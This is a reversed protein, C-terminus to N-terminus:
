SDNVVRRISSFAELLTDDEIDCYKDTQTSDEAHALMLGTLRKSYGQKTFHMGVFRRLYKAGYGELGAKKFRRCLYTSTAKNNIDPFVRDNPNLQRPITNLIEELETCIPIRIKRQTKRRVADLWLQNGKGVRKLNGWKLHVVDMIDVATYVMFWYVPIYKKDLLFNAVHDIKDLNLPPLREFIIKEYAPTKVKYLEGMVTRLLAQLAQLHKTITDEKAQLKGEANRGFLDEVYDEIIAPNIEAPKFKGFYPYIHNEIVSLRDLSVSGTLRLKNITTRASIPEIGKELNALIVGVKQIAKGVNKPKDYLDLSCFHFKSSDDERRKRFYLRGHQRKIYEMPVTVRKIRRFSVM